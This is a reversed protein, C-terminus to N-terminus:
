SRTRRPSAMTILASSSMVTAASAASPSLASRRARSIMGSTTSISTRIGWSSPTSAVRRSTASSGCHRTIMKVVKSRSAYANPPSLAPALPKKNFSEV